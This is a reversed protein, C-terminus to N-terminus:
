KPCLRAKEEGLQAIIAEQNVNPALRSPAVGQYQWILQDYTFERQARSKWGRDQMKQRSEELVEVAYQNKPYVREEGAIAPNNIGVTNQGGHSISM